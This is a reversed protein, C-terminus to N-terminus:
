GVSSTGWNVGAIRAWATSPDLTALNVWSDSCTSVHYLGCRGGGSRLPRRPLHQAKILLSPSRVTCSSTLRPLLKANPLSTATLMNKCVTCGHNNIRRLRGLPSSGGLPQQEVVNIMIQDQFRSVAYSTM